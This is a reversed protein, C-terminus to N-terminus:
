CIELQQAKYLLFLSIANLLFLITIKAAPVPLGKKVVSVAPAKLAMSILESM